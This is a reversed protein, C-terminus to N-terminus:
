LVPVILILMARRYLGAPAYRELLRNFRSYMSPHQENPM